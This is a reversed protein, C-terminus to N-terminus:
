FECNLESLLREFKAAPYSIEKSVKDLDDYFDSMALAIPAYKEITATILGSSIQKRTKANVVFQRLNSKWNDPGFASRILCQVLSLICVSRDYSRHNKLFEIESDALDFDSSLALGFDGLYLSGDCMTNNFHTDFHSFSHKEMTTCIKRLEDDVALVAKDATEGGCKLQSELWVSLTSPFYELFLVLEASASNIATLRERIRPNNDWYQADEDLQKAKDADDAEANPRHIVRWNYLLPFSSCKDALVWETTIQHAKLERWAGFGTSGLRYQYFLPLEFINATSGINEHRREPDTLPITKAFIKDRGVNIASAAGGIGTHTSVATLLLAYVQDDSFGQLKRSLYTYTKLRPTM